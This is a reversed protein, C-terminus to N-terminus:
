SAKNCPSCHPPLVASLNPTYIRSLEHQLHTSLIEPTISGTPCLGQLSIDGSSSRLKVESYVLQTRRFPTVSSDKGQLLTPLCCVSELAPLQVCTHGSFSPLMRLPFYTAQLPLRHEGTWLNM